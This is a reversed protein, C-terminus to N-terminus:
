SSRAIQKNSSETGAEHTLLRWKSPAHVECGSSAYREVLTPYGTIDGKLVEFFAAGPVRDDSYVGPHAVWPTMQYKGPFLLVRSLCVEFTYFGSELDIRLGEWSSTLHHITIGQQSSIKLGVEANMMPRHCELGIRAVMAEGMVFSTSPRHDKDLLALDRLRVHRQPRDHELNDLNVVARNEGTSLYHGIVERAGGLYAIGGGDLLIARSCLELISNMNHSVFLVTRGEHAVDEMKGLCKKQFAADGVALVEDVLLIEPDLHAAVAFALRVYMGSSYRKVPTDVFQEVESFAVIEDFKRAIEAKGM